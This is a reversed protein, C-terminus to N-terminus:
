KEVFNKIVNICKGYWQVIKQISKSYFEEVQSNLWASVNDKVRTMKLGSHGYGNTWTMNKQNREFNKFYTLAVEELYMPFYIMKKADNWGNALAAREFRTVHSLIDEM